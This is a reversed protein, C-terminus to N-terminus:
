SLPHMLERYMPLGKAWRVLPLIEHNVFHCITEVLNKEERLTSLCCDAVSQKVFVQEQEQLEQILQQARLQAEQVPGGRSPESKRLPAVSTQGSRSGAIATSADSPIKSPQRHRRKKPTPSAKAEQEQKLKILRRQESSGEYLSRGGRQRDQRIAQLKMGLSLCKQFRCAACHKRSQLDVKCGGGLACKLKEHRKSHITRKFFGKCSECSYMGYHYGSVKDECIPCKKDRPLQETFDVTQATNTQSQLSQGQDQLAVANTEASVPDSTLSTHALPPIDQIMDVLPAPSFDPQPSSPVTTLSEEYLQLNLSQHVEESTSESGGLASVPGMMTDVDRQLGSGVGALPSPMDESVIQGSSGVGESSAKCLVKLVGVSELPSTKEQDAYALPLGPRDTKTEVSFQSQPNLNSPKLLNFSNSHRSFADPLTFLDQPLATEGLFVKTDRQMVPSLSLSKCLKAEAYTDSVINEVISETSSTCTSRGNKHSMGPVSPITKLNSDVAVVTSPHNASAAMTVSMLGQNTEIKEASTVLWSKSNTVGSSTLDLPQHSQTSITGIAPQALSSKQQTAHQNLLNQLHQLKCLESFHARIKADLLSSYVQRADSAPMEQKIASSTQRTIDDHLPSSSSVLLPIAEQTVNWPISNFAFQSIPPTCSFSNSSLNAPAQKIPLPPLADSISTSCDRHSLAPLLGGAYMYTGRPPIVHSAAAVTSTIQSGQQNPSEITQILQYMRHPLQLGEADARCRGTATRHSPVCDTGLNGPVHIQEYLYSSTSPTGSFLREETM